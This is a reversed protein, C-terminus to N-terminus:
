IQMISIAPYREEIMMPTERPSIPPPPLIRVTGTSTYKNLTSATRAVAYERKM